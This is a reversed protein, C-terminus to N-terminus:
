LVSFTKMSQPHIETINLVNDAPSPPWIVISMNSHLPCPLFCRLQGEMLLFQVQSFGVSLLGGTNNLSDKVM